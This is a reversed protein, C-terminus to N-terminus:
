IANTTLILIRGKYAILGDITNLLGSLTVGNSPQKDDGAEIESDQEDHQAGESTQRMNNGTKRKPLGAQDVDEFVVFCLKPLKQFLITIGNDDLGDACLSITYIDLNFLSALALCMSSKGTGPLGYFLYGRRYPIGRQKYFGRAVPHLFGQVDEVIIKKKKPDLIVTSLERPKMSASSVWEFGIGGYLGRWINVRSDQHFSAQQMEIMLTKLVPNNWPATYFKLTEMSAALPSSPSGTPQRYLFVWCGEYTFRHFCSPAPTYRIRWKKGFRIKLWPKSPDGDFSARDEESLDEDNNKDGWFFNMKTEAIAKRSGTLDVCSSIWRMADNYLDGHSKVEMTDAFWCLFALFRGWFAKAVYAGFAVLAAIVLLYSSIDISFYYACFHTFFKYGPIFSELLAEVPLQDSTLTPSSM